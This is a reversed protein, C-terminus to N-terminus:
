SDSTNREHQRGLEYWRKETAGVIGECNLCIYKKNIPKDPTIDKFAHLPCAKLKKHNEQVQEYIKVLEQRDM